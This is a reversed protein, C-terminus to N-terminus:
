MEEPAFQSPMFPTEHLTASRRGSLVAIWVRASEAVVLVVLGVLTATIVADLRDNFALRTSSAAGSTALLHAHSLFGIRPNPNLVKHWAATFTVAVLVFLPVLTVAMYRVRAAKVLITTCVCLAVIALLQNAIGFLPWVSNIGGLPDRV